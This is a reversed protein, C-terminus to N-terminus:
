RPSCARRRRWLSRAHPRGPRRLFWGIFWRYIRKRVARGAGWAPVTAGCQPQTPVLHPLLTVNGESGPWEMGTAVAMVVGRQRVFDRYLGIVRKSGWGLKGIQRPEVPLNGFFTNGGHANEDVGVIRAPGMAGDCKM